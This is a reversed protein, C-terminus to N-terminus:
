KQKFPSNNDYISTTNKIVQEFLPKTQTLSLIQIIVYWSKQKTGVMFDERSIDRTIPSFLRRASASIKAMKEKGTKM